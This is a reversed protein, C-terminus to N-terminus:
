NKNGSKKGPKNTKTPAPKPEPTAIEGTWAIPDFEQDPRFSVVEVTGGDPALYVLCTGFTDDTEFKEPLPESECKGFNTTFSAAPLLTDEADVGWLPVASGGVDSDGVNTVTVDVYYPVAAKTYDDLIFGSFDKISGKTAKEVTLELVTGSDQDPEFIVSASDGFSLDSGPESLSVSPPVSVTSTPSPSATPEDTTGGGLGCSALVLGAAASLAVARTLRGRILSTAPRSRM